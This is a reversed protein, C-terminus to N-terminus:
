LLYKSTRAITPKGSMSLTWKSRPANSLRKTPTSTRLAGPQAHTRMIQSAEAVVAEAAVVEVVVTLPAMRTRIDPVTRTSLTLARLKCETRTQTITTKTAVVVEAAAVEESPHRKAMKTNAVVITAAISV